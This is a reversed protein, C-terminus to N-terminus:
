DSDEDEEGIAPTQTNDSATADTENNANDAEGTANNDM